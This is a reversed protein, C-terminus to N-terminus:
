SSSQALLISFSLHSSGAATILFTVTFLGGTSMECAGFFHFLMSDGETDLRLKAVEFNM